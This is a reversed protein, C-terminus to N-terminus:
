NEQSANLAGEAAQAVRPPPPFPRQARSELAHPLPISGHQPM